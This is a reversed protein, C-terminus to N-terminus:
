AGSEPTFTSLDMGRCLVIIRDPAINCTESILARIHAAQDADIDADVKFVLYDAPALALRKVEATYPFAEGHRMPPIVLPRVPEYHHGNM